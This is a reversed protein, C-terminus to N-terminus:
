PFTPERNTFSVQLMLLAIRISKFYKKRFQFYFWWREREISIAGCEIHKNSNKTNDLHITENKQYSSKSSTNELVIRKFSSFIGM